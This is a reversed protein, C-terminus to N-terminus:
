IGYTQHWIVMFLIHQTCRQIFCKRGEKQNDALTRKYAGNWSRHSMNQLSWCCYAVEDQLSGLQWSPHRHGWQHHHSHKHKEKILLEHISNPNQPKREIPQTLDKTGNPDCFPNDPTSWKCLGLAQCGNHYPALHLETTLANAWPAIPWRISGEHPPGMSSNRTGALAGCRPTVFATTHAIRDTPHHM